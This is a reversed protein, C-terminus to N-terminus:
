LRCRIVPGWGRKKLTSLWFPSQITSGEPRQSPPTGGGLESADKEFVQFGNKELTIVLFSLGLDPGGTAAPPCYGLKRVHGGVSAAPKVADVLFLGKYSLKGSEEEM